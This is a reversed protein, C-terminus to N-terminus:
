ISYTVYTKDIQFFREVSNNQIVENGLEVGANKLYKIYEKNSNDMEILKQIDAPCNQQEIRCLHWNLSTCLQNAIYSYNNSTGLMFTNILNGMNTLNWFSNKNTPLVGFSNCLNGVSLIDATNYKKDNGVFYKMAETMGVCTPNNAWIGGDIFHGGIGSAEFDYIPFYTPAASSAMGVDYMKLNEYKLSGDEKHPYKFVVNHGTDLCFSPVCLLNKAEKMTTDKFLGVLCNKLATNDYKHGLLQSTSYYINNFFNIFSNNNHGPFISNCNDEYMSIIDRISLNKTIGLAIIGGTSTGCIMDFYDSILKDNPICYKKEIEDLVYLSFLGNIGGGDISLIKFTNNNNLM